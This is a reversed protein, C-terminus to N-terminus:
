AELLAKAKRAVIIEENTDVVFIRVKSAEASIDDGGSPNMNKGEHLKIGFCELGELAMARIRDGKRGIGGGFVIADVGGMAAAYGGIFKTIQHVLMSEVLQYRKNGEKAGQEIDRNDSTTQTVTTADLDDTYKMAVYTTAITYPNRVAYRVIKNWINENYKTNAYATIQYGLQYHDPIYERYSGCFWKNFGREKSVDGIARYHMTFSPQLARGFSSMQTESLTADGELGWLPM